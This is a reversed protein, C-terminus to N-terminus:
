QKAEEDIVDPDTWGIGWGWLGKAPDTMGLLELVTQAAKLRAMENKGNKMVDEYVKVADPGLTRVRDRTADLAEWRLLNMLAEFEPIRKWESITPPTVNVALAVTKCREGQVLLAAARFQNPKLKM